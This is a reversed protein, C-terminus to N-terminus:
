KFREGKRAPILYTPYPPPPPIPRSKPMSPYVRHGCQVCFGETHGIRDIMWGGCRVCGAAEFNM